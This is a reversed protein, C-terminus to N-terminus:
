KAGGCSSCGGSVSFQLSYIFGLNRSSVGGGMQLERQQVATGLIKPPPVGGGGGGRISSNKKTDTLFGRMGEMGDTVGFSIAPPPSINEPTQKGGVGYLIPIPRRTEPPIYKTITPNPRQNTSFILRM